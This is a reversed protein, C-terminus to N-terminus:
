RILEELSDITYRQPARTRMVDRGILKGDILYEKGIWASTNTIVEDIMPTEVGVVLAIGKTVLLGFPVDETLYRTAVDVRYGATVKKVPVKFTQYGHNTQFQRALSSTDAIEEGYAEDLWRSLHVVGPMKLGPLREEVVKKITLVEDSMRSLVKAAAEDVSAYFLPVKDESPFVEGLRDGFVSYMIGPHILQGTNALSLELMSQYPIVDMGLLTSLVEAQERMEKRPMCSAGVREKTGRIIVSHGFEEIRCAWPLTQFGVLVCGNRGANGLIDRAQYELGSRAPLAAITNEKTLYPALQSLIPGHAFAPVVMIIIPSLM